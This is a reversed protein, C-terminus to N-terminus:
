LEDHEHDTKCATAASAKNFDDFKANGAVLIGWNELAIHVYDLCQKKPKFHGSENNVICVQKDKIRMEGACWVPDWGGNLQSHRVHLYRGNKGAATKCPYQGFQTKVRCNGPFMWKSDSQNRDYPRIYIDDESKRYVYIYRGDKLGGTNQKLKTVFNLKSTDMELHDRKTDDCKWCNMNGCTKKCDTRSNDIPTDAWGNHCTSPDSSNCSGGGHSFHAAFVFLGAFIIKIVFKIGKHNNM